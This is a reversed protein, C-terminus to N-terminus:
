ITKISFRERIIFELRIKFANDNGDEEIPEINGAEIDTFINNYNQKFILTNKIMLAKDYLADFEAIKDRAQSTFLELVVNVDNGHDTGNRFSATNGIILNYFREARSKTENNNGFVDDSWATLDPDCEIVRDNFYTRINTIM